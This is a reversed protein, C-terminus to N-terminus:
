IEPSVAHGADEEAMRAGIVPWGDGQMTPELRFAPVIDEEIEIGVAADPRTLTPLLRQILGDIAALRHQEQHALGPERRM